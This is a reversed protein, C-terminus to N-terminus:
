PKRFYIRNIEEPNIEITRIQKAKRKPKAPTAPKEAQKVPQSKDFFQRLYIVVMRFGVVLFLCLCFACFLIIPALIYSKLM